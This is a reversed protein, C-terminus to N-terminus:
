WGFFLPHKKNYVEINYKFILLFYSNPKKVLSFTSRRTLDNGADEVTSKIRGWEQCNRAGNQGCELEKKKKKIDLSMKNSTFGIM